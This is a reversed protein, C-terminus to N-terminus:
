VHWVEVNVAAVVGTGCVPNGVAHADHWVVFGPHVGDVYVCAFAVGLNGCSERWVLAAHAM